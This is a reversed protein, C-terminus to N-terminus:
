ENGNLYNSICILDDDSLGLDITLKDYERGCGEYVRRAAAREEYINYGYESCFDEFNRSNVYGIADSIACDLAEQMDRATLYEQRRSYAIQSNYFSFSIRKNNYEVVIKHRYCWGGWKNTPVGKYSGVTLEIDGVKIKTENKM